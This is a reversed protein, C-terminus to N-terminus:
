AADERPAPTILGLAAGTPDFIIAIRGVGPVDFPAAAVKGGAGEVKAACADVDAVNVYCMWHPPVGEFQPGDMKMMGGAPNGGATWLHYTGGGDGPMPMSDTGWGVVDTYFSTAADTDTTMLENWYFQGPASDAM